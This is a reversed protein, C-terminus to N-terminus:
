IGLAAAAREYSEQTEGFSGFFGQLRRTYLQVDCETSFGLAGHLRYADNAVREFHENALAKTAPIEEDARLGNDLLWAAQQCLIRIADASVRMDACPHAVAQFTGIPQGFAERRTVHAATLTILAECMGVAEATALLSGIQLGADLADRAEHGVHLLRDTPVLVDTLVISALPVGVKSHHVTITVGDTAPDVAVIATEGNLTAATILIEDAVAAFPVLVKTGSLVHAGGEPRLPLRVADWENRGQEDILAPSVISGEAISRLLRDRHSGQPSRQLMTAAVGSSVGLPLTAGARGMEESLVCLDLLGRGGGGL